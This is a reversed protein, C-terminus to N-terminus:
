HISLFKFKLDFTLLGFSLLTFKTHIEHAVINLTNLTNLENVNFGRALSKMLALRLLYFSFSLRDTM